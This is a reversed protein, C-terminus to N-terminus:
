FKVKTILERFNKESFYFLHSECKCDSCGFGKVPKVSPLKSVTRNLVCELRRDTKIPIIHFIKAHKLLYDIHWFLKKQKRRHRNIREMLGSMASGSYFYFGKPFNIKGLKGIKIKTNKNLKMVLCYIGKDKKM